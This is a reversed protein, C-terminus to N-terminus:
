RRKQLCILFYTHNINITCEFPWFISKWMFYQCCIGSPHLGTLTPFVVGFATLLYAPGAISPPQQLLESPPRRSDDQLPSPNGSCFLILPLLIFYHTGKSSFTAACETCTLTEKLKKDKKKDHDLNMKVELGVCQLRELMDNASEVSMKRKRGKIALGKKVMNKDMSLIKIPKAM